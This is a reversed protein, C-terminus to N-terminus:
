RIFYFKKPFLRIISINKKSFKKKSILNRRAYFEVLTANETQVNDIVELLDPIGPFARTSRSKHGISVWGNQSQDNTLSVLPNHSQALGGFSERFYSTPCHIEFHKEKEQIKGLFRSNKM